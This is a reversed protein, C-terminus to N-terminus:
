NAEKVSEIYWEGKYQYTYDTITWEPSCTNDEVEQKNSYFFIQEDDFGYQDAETDENYSGFSIYVYKEVGDKWKITANIGIPTPEPMTENM